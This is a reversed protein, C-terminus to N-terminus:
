LWCKLMWSQNQKHCWYLYLHDPCFKNEGESLSPPTVTVCCYRPGRFISLLVFLYPGPFRSLLTRTLRNMIAESSPHVFEHLYSFDILLSVHTHELIKLKLTCSNHSNSQTTHTPYLQISKRKAGTICTHMYAHIYAHICTYMSWSKQKMSHKIASLLSRLLSLRWSVALSGASTWCKDRTPSTYPVPPWCCASHQLRSSLRWYVGWLKGVCRDM